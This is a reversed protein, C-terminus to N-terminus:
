VVTRFFVALAVCGITNEGNEFPHSGMMNDCFLEYPPSYSFM